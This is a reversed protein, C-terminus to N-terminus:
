SFCIGFKKFDPKPSYKKLIRFFNRLIQEIIWAETSIEQSIELIGVPSFVRPIQVVKTFGLNHTTTKGINIIALADASANASLDAAM